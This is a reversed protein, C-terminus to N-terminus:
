IIWRQALRVYSFNTHNCTKRSLLIFTCKIIRWMLQLKVKHLETKNKSTRPPKHDKSHTKSLSTVDAFIHKRDIFSWHTMNPHNVESGSKITTKTTVIKDKIRTQHENFLEESWYFDWKSFKQSKKIINQNTEKWNFGSKITFLTITINARTALKTIKSPSKM